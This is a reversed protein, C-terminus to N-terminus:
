YGTMYKMAFKRIPGITLSNLFYQIKYTLSVRVHTYNSTLSNKVQLAIDDASLNVGMKDMVKAGQGAVMNTNVFPPEIDLVHIGHRAWEINLSETLSRVWAKSAAYTALGPVGYMSSASSMNIVRSGKNQKLYEFALYCGNMVGQNNVSMIQNHRQLSIDEFHGFELLGACNFLVDIKGAAAHFEKFASALQIEDSVSVTHVSCKNAGWENQLALLPKESVDFLGVFWGDKLMMQAVAHGIGSAAGTIIISKM